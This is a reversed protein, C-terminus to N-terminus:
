QIPPAFKGKLDTLIGAVRHRFDSALSAWDEITVEQADFYTATFYATTLENFFALLHDIETLVGLSLLWHIAATNGEFMKRAEEWRFNPRHGDMRLALRTTGEWWERATTPIRSEERQWVRQFMRHLLIGPRIPLSDTEVAPPRDKYPVEEVPNNLILEREDLLEANWGIYVEDKHIPSTPESVTAPTNSAAAEVFSIDIEEYQQEGLGTIAAELYGPRGLLKHFEPDERVFRSVEELREPSSVVGSLYHQIQEESLPRIHHVESDSYSQRWTELYRWPRSTLVVKTNPFRDVFQSLASLFSRRAAEEGMEDLGDFCLLWRVHPLEFIREPEAPREEWWGGLANIRNTLQACLDGLDTTQANSLGLYVPVWGAPPLYEEREIHGRISALGSEAHEGIWRGLLSSKGSLAEGMIIFARTSNILFASFSKDLPHGQQDCLEQWLRIERGRRVFDQGLVQELYRQWGSPFPYPATTWAYNWPFQETIDIEAKSEGTRIWSQGRSLRGERWDRKVRFPEPSSQRPIVVFAWIPQGGKLVFKVDLNAIIPGVNERIVEAIKSKICDRVAADQTNNRARTLDEIARQWLSADGSNIGVIEIPQDSNRVDRLGLVFYAERGLLRMTNALAIVDRVFEAKGQPTRLDVMEKREILPSEEFQERELFQRAQTREEM